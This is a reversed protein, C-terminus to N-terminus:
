SDMLYGGNINIIQGTVFSAEDSVLFLVVSAVDEPTGLRGVPIMKRMEEQRKKNWYDMMPTIIAHPAVANVNIGYPGFQRALSKTLVNMAGKSSGYSPATAHDGQQGAISSVNVIKGYNQRKMVPITERCCYFTGKYNIALVKELREDDIEELTGFAIIGANNVLIDVTKLFAVAEEVMRKVESSSSVDARIAIARAGTKEIESVVELAKKESKSYNVVLDCGENAFCLAVAKGIGYSSGTVIAKKGQLKKM